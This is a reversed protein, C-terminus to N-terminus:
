KRHLKHSLWGLLSVPGHDDTGEGPPGFLGEPDELDREAQKLDEPTVNLLMNLESWDLWLGHCNRCVEVQVKGPLLSELSGGCGPCALRSHEGEKAHKTLWRALSRKGTLAKLEGDDLYIGKCVECRDLEVTALESGIHVPKLKVYCRPCTRKM